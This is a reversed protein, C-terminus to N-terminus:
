PTGKQPRRLPSHQRLEARAQSDNPTLVSHGSLVLLRTLIASHSGISRHEGRIREARLAPQAKSRPQEGLSDSRGESTRRAVGTSQGPRRVWIGVVPSASQSLGSITVGAWLVTSLGQTRLSHKSRTLAEDPAHSERHARSEAAGGAAHFHDWASEFLSAREPDLIVDHLVRVGGLQTLAETARIRIQLRAGSASRHFLREYAVGISRQSTSVVDDSSANSLLLEVNAGEELAVAWFAAGPPLDVDVRFGELDSASVYRSTQGVAESAVYTLLCLTVLWRM